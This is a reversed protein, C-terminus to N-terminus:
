RPCPPGDFIIVPYEKFPKCIHPFIYSKIRVAVHKNPYPKHLVTENCLLFNTNIERFMMEEFSSFIYGNTPTTGSKNM